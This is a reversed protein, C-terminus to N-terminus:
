GKDPHNYSMCIARDQSKKDPLPPKQYISSNRMRHLKAQRLEKNKLMKMNIPFIQMYLVNNAPSIQMHVVNNAPFIQM